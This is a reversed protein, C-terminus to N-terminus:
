GLLPICFKDYHLCVPSYQRVRRGKVNVLTCAIVGQCGVSTGLLSAAMCSPVMHWKGNGMDSSLREWLVPCARGGRGQFM